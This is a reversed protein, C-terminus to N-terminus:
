ARALLGDLRGRVAPWESAVVSFYASDRVGVENYRPMSSRLVGEFSAGIRLIARRSRENRADTKLYVRQVHWMDFACGFMLLKAETNVPTRQASAALWTSGIEVADPNGDALPWSWWEINFFRTHGVIVGDTQRRQVFSLATGTRQDALLKELYRDVDDRDCPVWSYAYSSRDEAAAALLADAHDVSLPELRVHRGELVVTEVGM